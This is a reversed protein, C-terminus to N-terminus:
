SMYMHISHQTYLLITIYETGAHTKVHLKLEKQCNELYIYQPSVYRTSM